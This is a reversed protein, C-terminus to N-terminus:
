EYEANPNQLRKLNEREKDLALEIRREVQKIEEKTFSSDRSSSSSSSFWSGSRTLRRRVRGLEGELDQIKQQAEQILLTNELKDLDTALRAEKNVEESTAKGVKSRFRELAAKKQGKVIELKEKLPKALWAQEHPDIGVKRVLPEEGIYETKCAGEDGECAAAVPKKNMAHTPYFSFTCAILLLSKIVNM